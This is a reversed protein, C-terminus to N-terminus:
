CVSLFDFSDPRKSLETKFFACISLKMDNLHSQVFFARKEEVGHM